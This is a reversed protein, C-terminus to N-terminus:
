LMHVCLECYQYYLFVKLKIHIKDYKSMWNHLELIQSNILDYYKKGCVQCTRKRGWEPKVM